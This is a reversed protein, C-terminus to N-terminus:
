LGFNLCIGDYAFYHGVEQYACALKELGEQVKEIDFWESPLDPIGDASDVCLERQMVKVFQSVRPGCTAKLQKEVEDWEGSVRFM